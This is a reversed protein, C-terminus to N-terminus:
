LQENEKEEKKPLTYVRTTLQKWGAEIFANEIEPPASFELKVTTLGRKLADQVAKQAAKWQMEPIKQEFEKASMITRVVPKVPNAPPFEKRVRETNEFVTSHDTSSTPNLFVHM